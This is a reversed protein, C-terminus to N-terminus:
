AQGAPQLIGIGVRQDHLGVRAVEGGGGGHLPHVGASSLNDTPSKASRRKRSRQASEALHPPEVEQTLEIRQDGVTLAARVLIGGETKGAFFDEDCM